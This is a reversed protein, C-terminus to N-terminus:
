PLVPDVGFFDIRFGVFTFIEAGEIRFFGRYLVFFLYLIKLIM